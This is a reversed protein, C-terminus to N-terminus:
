KKVFTWDPYAAQYASLLTAPVYITRTSLFTAIGSLDVQTDADFYVSTVTALQLISDGFNSSLASGTVHLTTFTNPYFVTGSSVDFMTALTVNGKVFLTTLASAGSLCATGVADCNVTVTKLLTCGTFLKAGSAITCGNLTVTALKTCGSFLYSNAAITGGNLTASALNTCGDFIEKGITTLSNPLTIGALKSGAFARNGITTYGTGVTVSTVSKNEFVSAAVTTVPLAAEAAFMNATGFSTPLVCGTTGDFRVVVGATKAENYDVWTKATAGKNAFLPIVTVDCDLGALTVGVNGVGEIYWGEFVKDSYTANPLTVVDGLTFSVTPSSLANAGQMDYTITRFAEMRGWLVVDSTAVLNNASKNININQVRTTYTEDTFWGFWKYVATSGPETLSIGTFYTFTADAPLDVDEVNCRFSLNYTQAEFQSYLTLSTGSVYAQLSSTTLLGGTIEKTYATDAYWTTQTVYGTQVMAPLQYGEGIAELTLTKSYAGWEPAVYNVNSGAANKYKLSVTYTIPTWKCYLVIDKCVPTATGNPTAYGLGTVATGAADADEYLNALTYGFRKIKNKINTNFEGSTDLTGSLQYTTPLGYAEVEEATLSAYTITYTGKEWMPYLDMNAYIGATSTILEQPNYTTNPYWGLFAYGNAGPAALEVVQEASYTLTTGSGETNPNDATTVNTSGAKGNKFTITYSIAEWKAYVTLVYHTNGDYAPLTDGVTAFIADTDVAYQGLENTGIPETALRDAYWGLFRYGRRIPTLLTLSHTRYTVGVAQAQDLTGAFASTGADYFNVGYITPTWKAYLDTVDYTGRPLSSLRTAPLFETSTYWGAFTNYKASVDSFLLEESEVTYTYKDVTYSSTGTVGELKATLLAPDEIMYHFYVTYQALTWKAFFVLDAGSACSGIETFKEGKLLNNNYWGAFYYGNREPVPLVLGAYTDYTDTVQVEDYNYFYTITRQYGKWHATFTKGSYAALTATSQSVTAPEGEVIRVEIAPLEEDGAYAWYDLLCNNREGASQWRAIYDASSDEGDAFQLPTKVASDERALYLTYVPTTKAYLTFGATHAGRRLVYAGNSRYYETTCALDTYWGEFRYGEIAAPRIVVDDTDNVSFGLRAGIELGTSAQVFTVYYVNAAWNAHLVLDGSLGSFSTVVSTGNAELSWGRFTYGDREPAPINRTDQTTYTGAAFETANGVPYSPSDHLQYTVNYTIARWVAVLDLDVAYTGAYLTNNEIPTGNYTYYLFEYGPQALPPDLTVTDQVTYYRTSGYAVGFSTIKIYYDQIQWKAVLTMDETVVTNFNFRDGDLSGIYWGLCAYGKRNYTQQAVKGTGEDTQVRIPTLNEFNPDFTVTHVEFRAVVSYPVSVRASRGYADTVTVNVANNASIVTASFNRDVAAADTVYVEASTGDAYTLLFPHQSLVRVFETRSDDEFVRLPQQYTYTASTISSLPAVTYPYSVTILGYASDFSVQCSYDGTKDTKFGVVTMSRRIDELPWEGTTGDDFTACLTGRYSMAENLKYDTKVGDLTASLVHSQVADAIVTYSFKCSQDLYTIILTRSGESRTNFEGSLMSQTLEVEETTGDSYTLTLYAGELDVTEGVTYTPKLTGRTVQVSILRADQGGCASLLLVASLAVLITVALILIKRNM